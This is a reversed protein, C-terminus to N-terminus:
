KYGAHTGSECQYDDTWLGRERGLHEFGHDTRIPGRREDEQGGPVEAREADLLHRLGDAVFPAHDHVIPSPECRYKKRTRSGRAVGCTRQIKAPVPSSM